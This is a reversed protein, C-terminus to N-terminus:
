DSDIEFRAVGGGNGKRGASNDDDLYRDADFMEEEEDDEAGRLEHWDEGRRTDKAGRRRRARIYVLILVSAFLSMILIAIVIGVWGYYVQPGKQPASSPIPSPSGSPDLLLSTGRSTDVVGIFRNLMDWVAVPVDVAPMHSAGYILVYSMNRSSQWSGINVDDILYSYTTANSMGTAGNWTLNSLFLETGMHNCILDQDGSFLLVQIKSTLYPLLVSSPLSPDSRLSSGVKDDCETWKTKKTTHIATLVDARGLYETVYPLSKPWESLGCDGNPKSDKSRIDYMNICPRNGARSQLLVREMIMDCTDYHIKPGGKSFARKCNEIDARAYKAYEGGLIGNKTAFDYYSLYQPLPDIWGNGVIIGKLDLEPPILTAAERRKLIENALYPVYIGAYSEGGIYLESRKFEPFISYFNELFVMFRKTASDQTLDYQDATSFGTGAPQDVFLLHANRGWSNQNIELVKSANVSFPGFEMFMGDMSRTISASTHTMLYSIPGIHPRTGQADPVEM